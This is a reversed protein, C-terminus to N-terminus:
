TMYYLCAFRQRLGGCIPATILLVTTCESRVVSGLSLWQRVSGGVTVVQYILQFRKTWSVVNSM